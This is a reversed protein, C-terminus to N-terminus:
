GSASMSANGICWTIGRREFVGPAIRAGAGLSPSCLRVSSASAPTSAWAYAFSSAAPTTLSPPVTELPSSSHLGSQGHPARQEVDGDVHLLVDGLRVLAAGVADQEVELVAHRRV